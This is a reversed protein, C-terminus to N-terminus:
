GGCTCCPREKQMLMFIADLISNHSPHAKPEPIFEGVADACLTHGARATGAAILTAALSLGLAVVAARLRTGLEIRKHM